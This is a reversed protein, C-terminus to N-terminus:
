IVQTQQGAVEIILAATKTLTLEFKYWGVSAVDSSVTKGGRYPLQRGQADKVGFDVRTAIRPESLPEHWLREKEAASLPAVQWHVVVERDYLDVATIQFLGVELPIPETGAVSRHFQGPDSLPM